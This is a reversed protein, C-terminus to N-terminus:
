ISMGPGQHLEDSGDISAVTTLKDHDLSVVSPHVLQQGLTENSSSAASPDDEQNEHNNSEQAAHGNAAAAAAAADDDNGHSVVKTEEACDKTEEAPGSIEGSKDRLLNPLGDQITTWSIISMRSSGGSFTASLIGSMLVVPMAMTPLMQPAIPPTTKYVLRVRAFATGNSSIAIDDTGGDELEYALVSVKTVDLPQSELEIARTSVFKDWAAMQSVSTATRDVASPTSPPPAVQGAAATVTGGVGSGSNSQSPLKNFKQDEIRLVLGVKPDGLTDQFHSMYTTLSEARSVANTVVAASATPTTSTASSSKHRQYEDNLMTQRLLLFRQFNAARHSRRDEILKM